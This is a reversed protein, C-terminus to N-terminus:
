QIPAVSTGDWDLCVLGTPTWVTEIIATNPMPARRVFDFTINECVVPLMARFTGGHGVLLLEGEDAHRGRLTDIFPIFRREIDEFSEGGPSRVDFEQRDIWAEVVEGHRRWTEEDGKGELEGCDYERLADAVEFEVGFKSALISATEQARLIPSTYIKVIKRNSLKEALEEAQAVGKETLPHPLDRNSVIGLTNAVSEGHRVFLITM